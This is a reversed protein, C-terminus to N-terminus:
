KNFVLYVKSPTNFLTIFQETDAKVWVHKGTHPIVSFRGVCFKIWTPSLCEHSALLLLPHSGKITVQVQRFVVHGLSTNCTTYHSAAPHHRSSFYQKVVINVYYFLCSYLCIDAFVLLLYLTNSESSQLCSEQLLIRDTCCIRM